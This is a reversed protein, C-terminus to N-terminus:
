DAPTGSRTVVWWLGGNLDVNHCRIEGPSEHEYFYLPRGDYTVQLRGGGRRITGLLRENVGPGATPQERTLVPPWAKVCEQSVCNSTNPRDLEFAYVVQGNTDFLVDGFPSDRAVIEARRAPVRLGEPGRPRVSLEAGDTEESSDATDTEPQERTEMPAADTTNAPPGAPPPSEAQDDSGCGVIALVLIVSALGRSV